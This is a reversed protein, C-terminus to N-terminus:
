QSGGLLIQFGGSFMSVSLVFLLLIVVVGWRSINDPVWRDIYAFAFGGIIGGIIMVIVAFAQETMSEGETLQTWQNYM